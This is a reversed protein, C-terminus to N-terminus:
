VEDVSARLSIIRIVSSHFYLCLATVTRAVSMTIFLYPYVNCSATDIINGTKHNATIFWVGSERLPGFSYSFDHYVFGKVFAIHILSHPYCLRSSVSITRSRVQTCPLGSPVTHCFWKHVTPPLLSTCYISKSESIATQSRFYTCLSPKPEAM